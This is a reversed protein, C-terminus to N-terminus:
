NSTLEYFLDSIYDDILTYENTYMDGNKDTDNICSSSGHGFYLGNETCENIGCIKTRIRYTNKYGKTITLLEFTPNLDESDTCTLECRYVDGQIKLDKTIM